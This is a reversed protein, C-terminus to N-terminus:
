APFEVLAATLAQIEADLGALRARALAAAASSLPAPTAALRLALGQLWHTDRPADPTALPYPPLPLAPGGPALWDPRPLPAALLPGLVRVAWRRRQHRQQNPQRQQGVQYALDTRRWQCRALRQRLAALTEAAGAPDAPLAEDTFDPAAPGHGDPPPLQRALVQLRQDPGPGLQKRGAEVRALQQQSVGVFAALEAQTLGFHRRVAAALTYSPSARRPM